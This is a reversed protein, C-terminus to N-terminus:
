IKKIIRAPVGAVICNSPIDKTVVANAAVTVNDGINVGSLITAKDGIWVNRGIIIEGKSTLKREAPPIQSDFESLDGHSNDGIYVFRGTLLGDGITIGKCATIHNYEGLNCNNGISIYPTFKQCGYSTWCGLVTNSQIITNNGISIFKQGSGQLKCPKGILVKDGVSGIFNRIWMTYFIDRWHKFRISASYPYIIGLINFLIKLSSLIATNM